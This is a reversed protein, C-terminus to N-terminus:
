HDRRSSRATRSIVRSGTKCRQPRRPMWTVITLQRAGLGLLAYATAAGGGGAGIQVVRELRAGALDRRVSEAFGWADTNYGIRKGNSFHVTNVAGITEAEDSLRHLLPIVSQKCPHTINVGAFGGREADSLVDALAAPGRGSADLDLLEYTCRLGQAVAETQHIAPSKSAQIGTGILGLRFFPAPESQVRPPESLNNIPMKNM